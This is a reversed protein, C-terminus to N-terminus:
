TLFFAPALKSSNCLATPMKRWPYIRTPGMTINWSLLVHHLHRESFVIVLDLHERRISGILREACENQWPSRPSVWVLLGYLLRFSITPVVFLRRIELPV